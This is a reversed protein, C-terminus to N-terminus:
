TYSVNLFLMPVSYSKAIMYMQWTWHGIDLINKQQYVKEKIEM